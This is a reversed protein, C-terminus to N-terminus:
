LEPNKQNGPAILVAAPARLPQAMSPGSYLGAMEVVMYARANQNQLTKRNIRERVYRQVYIKM